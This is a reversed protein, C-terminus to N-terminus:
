SLLLAEKEDKAKNVDDLNIGCAAAHTISDYKNNNKLLSYIINALKGCLHGIAKKKSMGEQVKRDYDASNRM